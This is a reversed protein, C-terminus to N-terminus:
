KVARNGGSKKARQLAADAAAWQEGPAAVDRWSWGASATFPAGSETQVSRRVREIVEGAVLETLGVLLLGFEDGGIRALFDHPRLSARLRSAAEALVGDGQFHGASDNVQKFHDLDFIALALSTSSGALRALEGDWARRNAVGTLPDRLAEQALHARTESAYQLERRLRVLEVLMACALRLEAPSSSALLRVTLTRSDFPSLEAPFEPSLIACGVGPPCAVEHDTVVVLLGEDSPGDIAALAAQWAARSVDSETEFRFLSM